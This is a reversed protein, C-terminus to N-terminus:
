FFYLSIHELCIQEVAIDMKKFLQFSTFFLYFMLALWQEFVAVNDKVILFYAYCWSCFVIATTYTIKM